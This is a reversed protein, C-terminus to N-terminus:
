PRLSGRFLIDLLQHRAEMPSMLKKLVHPTMSTIGAIVLGALLDVDVDARLRGQGHLIQLLSRVDTRFREVHETVSQPPSRLAAATLLARTPSEVFYTLQLDIYNELLAIPDSGADADLVGQLRSDVKAVEQVVWADLIRSVNPFYSYLTPRSVKARVAVASMTVRGTGQHDALEIAASIIRERASVESDKAM